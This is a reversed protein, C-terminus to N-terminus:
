EDTDEEDNNDLDGEDDTASHDHFTEAEGEELAKLEEEANIGPVQALLTRKSLADSQYLPLYVQVIRNWQEQTILPIQVALRGAKLPTKTANKNWIAIAKNLMEQYLGIWIMREKRTSANVLEMLNDATSRNSMLDPLGLFHVPVGTTGSVMKALTIIEKELTGSADAAPSVYGFKGTHIFMKRLRLNRMAVNVADSMKGADPATAVELDPVPAGFLHNIERWDRLAKDLGKIMAIAKAVKPYPLNPQHVRGGFRGYVFDPEEIVTPTGDKKWEARQYWAYDNADSKITYTYEARSRFRVSVMQDEENWFLQGLFCGELEAEKAFEQAMERDLDNYELFRRAFELENWAEEELSPGNPRGAVANKEAPTQPKPKPVVKIGDGIIFSSRVDIINGTQVVGWDARGEYMRALEQIAATYDPFDNGRYTRKETQVTEIDDIILAQEQVQAKLAQLEQRIKSGPILSQVRM